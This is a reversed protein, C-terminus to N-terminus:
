AGRRPPVVAAKAPKSVEALPWRARPSVDLTDTLGLALREVGAWAIMAGNDTCLEPAPVVLVTGAEIGKSCLVLDSSSAPQLSGLVSALHQAPTVLLLIPLSALEALDGTPRVAESLENNPLYLANRRESAISEVVEPERAWLVVDRGDSALVQALATGWAGAGVVGIAPSSM